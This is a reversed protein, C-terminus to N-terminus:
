TTIREDGNPSERVRVDVWPLSCDVLPSIPPLYHSRSEPDPSPNDFMKDVAAQWEIARRACSKYNLYMALGLSLKFTAFLTLSM